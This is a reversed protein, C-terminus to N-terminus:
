SPRAARGPIPSSPMILVAAAVLLAVVGAALFVQHLAPELVSAPIGSATSSIHDGVRQNMSSNAIAGFVAIGLASGM